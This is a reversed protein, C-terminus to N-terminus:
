TILTKIVELSDLLGQSGLIKESHIGLVNSTTLLIEAAREIIMRQDRQSSCLSMAKLSV